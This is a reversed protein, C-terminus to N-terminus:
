SRSRQLLRRACAALEERLADPQKIRFPFPLRALERAFWGLDDSQGRLLVGGDVQELVGFAPFVGRRATELDTELLVEIAYARPLTAVSRTLHELADFGEPRSFSVELPQVSRVRDLRFSRLGNRLHCVGVAYWRGARWALGYPDFDRETEEHEAARYRLRVRRQAQSAASLAVLAANDGPATSRALDLAVTEDVARVRRKLGAPMVRELKAQASAVAPAAEALGLGRAALLGVSLALAEDETFMMPPLKFGAVLMYAGDRGREATLPIGLEELMAIYRRVTRRDVELRRALEAGSMRGHTQLLELVTLVRTTPRSM